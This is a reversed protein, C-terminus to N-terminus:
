DAQSSYSTVIHVFLEDLDKPSINVYDNIQNQYANLILLLDDRTFDKM